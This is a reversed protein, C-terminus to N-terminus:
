GESVLQSGVAVASGVDPTYGDAGLRKWLDSVGELALGGVLIKPGRTVQRITEIAAQLTKIQTTLTASLVILDAHYSHAAKAIDAAPMDAGLFISHWGALRFLDSVARLGIDHSNGAVSAALVTHSENAVPAFRNVILTMVARTTESVLREESVSVDGMHWLEGVERQAPLLVRTYADQPTLEDDLADLILSVAADSRAELCATLYRLGLQGYSTGADLTQLDPDQEADLSDLALRIPQEVSPRLDEPLEQDLAARLCELARRLTSEDAGRAKFARRLWGIRRAFLAPEDVRVAAALELVRQTLHAKWESATGASGSDAQSDQQLLVNAASAYGAASAELVQAAMPNANTM